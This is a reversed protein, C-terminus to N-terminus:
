TGEIKLQQSDTVYDTASCIHVPIEPVLEGTLQSFTGIRFLQFDEPHSNLLSERNNVEDSFARIAEGLARQLIPRGFSEAKLDKVTFLILDM